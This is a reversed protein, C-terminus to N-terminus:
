QLSRAVRELDAVSISGAIGYVRDGRQWIGASGIGASDALLLGPGGAITMERWSVRDAPVPIPLTTRWDPIARLKQATEPPISPLGLLFERMEDLSVNGEASVALERSQGVLLGRRNDSSRYELLVAAPVAMVLSAGDFKEPLVVGSQGTRDFHARAKARDFTFRVEFAPSVQVIPATALDPPLASEQPRSVSFGVRQSADAVSAVREGQTDPGSGRVTGLAELERFPNTKQSMEVPVATFRQSRFQALFQTAAAQGVPTGIVFSL